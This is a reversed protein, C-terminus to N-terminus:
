HKLRKLIFIVLTSSERTENFDRPRRTQRHREAFVGGAVLDLYFPFAVILKQGDLKYICEKRSMGRGIDLEKPKKTPDLKYPESVGKPDAASRIVVRDDQFSFRLDKWIKWQDKKLDKNDISGERVAELAWTGKLKGKEAHVADTGQDAALALVALTIWLFRTAV